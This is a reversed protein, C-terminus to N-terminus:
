SARLGMTEMVDLFRSAEWPKSLFAAGVPLMGREHADREPLGSVFIFPRRSGRARLQRHLEMGDMGPMSLDSVVVDVGEGERDVVELAEMGSGAEVVRYGLRVLMRASTRRVGADDDVLLITIRRRQPDASEAGAARTDAPAAQGAGVAGAVVDGGMSGAEGPAPFYLRFTTGEGPRSYVGIHGDHQRMLGHVTTLGLGTGKGEVKTTFFPEFIQALTAEDMGTGDDSVTLRGYRGPAVWSQEEWFEPGADVADVSVRITGAGAVADRANAVLNLLIQEVARSDAHVVPGPDPLELAMEVTEPVLKRALRAAQGVAHGLDVERIDLDARRSFGMLRKVLDRGGKAAQEIDALIERDDDSLPGPDMLLLHTNTLIVSLLNNFDHAIGGTLRGVAELKQAEHLRTEARRQETVDVFAGVWTEQGDGGKAPEWRGALWRRSGADDVVRAEQSFAAGRATREQWFAASRGRAGEELVDWWAQGVSTGEPVGLLRRWWPSVERVVGEATVRLVGVAAVRELTAYRRRLSARARESRRRGLEARVREWRLASLIALTVAMIGAWAGMLALHRRRMAGLQAQTERDVAAELAEGREALSRLRLGLAVPDHPERGAEARAAAVADLFARSHQHVVSDDVRGAARFGPLASRGELLDDLAGAAEDLSAIRESPHVTPDAAGVGQWAMAADAVALRARTLNDIAVATTQLASVSQRYDAEMLALSLIALTGLAAVPVWRARRWGAVKGGSM